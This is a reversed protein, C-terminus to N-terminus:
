EIRIRDPEPNIIEYHGDNKLMLTLDANLAKDLCLRANVMDNLDAKRVAEVPTRGVSIHRRILRDRLFLPDARIMVTYDAFRRLGRWGEEDLLLYNGEILVIDSRVEIGYPAVDHIRRDYVPWLCTKGQSLERLSSKLRDLDFTEPAGKIRGLSIPEGNRQVTHANLYDQSFHFGDMGVATLRYPASGSLVQLFAALTSKGAAPPAALMALIRRGKRRRMDSLRGILPLFIHRVNDDSFEADVLMGCNDLTYHM